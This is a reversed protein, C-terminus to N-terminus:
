AGVSAMTKTLAGNVRQLRTSPIRRMPNNGIQQHMRMQCATNTSAPAVADWSVGCQGNLCNRKVNLAHGSKLAPNTSLCTAPGNQRYLELLEMLKPAQLQELGDKLEHIEFELEDDSQTADQERNRKRAVRHPASAPFGWTWSRQPSGNQNLYHYSARADVSVASQLPSLAHTLPICQEYMTRALRGALEEVDSPSAKCQNRRLISEIMISTIVILYMYQGASFRAGAAADSSTALTPDHFVKHLVSPIPHPASVYPGGRPLPLWGEECCARALKM